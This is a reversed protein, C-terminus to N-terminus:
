FGSIYLYVNFCSISFRIPPIFALEDGPNLLKDSNINIYELNLAFVLSQQLEELKPWKKFMKRSFDKVTFNGTTPIDFFM